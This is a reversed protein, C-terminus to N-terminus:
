DSLSAAVSGTAARATQLLLPAIHERMDEISWRSTPGSVNIAAIPRDGAGRIAAGLTLDGLYCEQCAWAYGLERAAAVIELIRPIETLTHPTFSRLASKELIDRAEDAPLAALLARGSATCYMPLRRGVPMHIFFRKVSPFRAIFVMEVGDPESLSVSEGCAQNLDVLHPTAQEIVPHGALYPYGLGLTRPTLAWGRFREHRKLYGLKLLTHICRQASGPTMGAASAIQALGLVRREASFAALVAFAKEITRNYLPDSAASREGQKAM